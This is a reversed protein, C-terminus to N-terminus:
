INFIKGFLVQGIKFHRLGNLNAGHQRLISSSLNIFVLKFSKVPLNVWFYGSYEELVTFPLCSKSYPLASASTSIGSRSTKTLSNFNRPTLFTFLMFSKLLILFLIFFTLPSKLCFFIRFIQLLFSKVFLWWVKKMASKLILHLLPVYTRPIAFENPSLICMGANAYEMFLVLIPLHLM